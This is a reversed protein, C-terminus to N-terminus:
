GNLIGVLREVAEATTKGNVTLTRNDATAVIKIGQPGADIDLDYFGHRSSMVQAIELADLQVERSTEKGQTDKYFVIAVAEM